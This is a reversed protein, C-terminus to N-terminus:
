NRVKIASNREREGEEDITIVGNDLQVVTLKDEPTQRVFSLTYGFNSIESLYCQQAISLEKM